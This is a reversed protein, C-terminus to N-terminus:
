VYLTCPIKCMARIAFYDCSTSFLGDLLAAALSSALLYPGCMTYGNARRVLEQYVSLVRVHKRDGFFSTEANLRQVIRGAQAVGSRRLYSVGSASKKLM